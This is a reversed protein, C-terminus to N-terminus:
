GDERLEAEILTYKERRRALARQRDLAEGLALEAADRERERDAVLRRAVDIRDIQAQDAQRWRRLMPSDGPDAQCAARLAARREAVDVICDALAQRADALAQRAAESARQARLLEAEALAARRQALSGIRRVDPLRADPPSPM